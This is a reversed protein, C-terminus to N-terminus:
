LKGKVGYVYGGRLGVLQQTYLFAKGDAKTVVDTLHPLERTSCVVSLVEVPGERGMGLYRTCAFGAERVAAEIEEWSDHTIITVEVIARAMRQSLLIGMMTGTAFGAAYALVYPWNRIDNIVRSVILIFILVEVFGILAALYKRGRVILQVRITGLSVDVVRAAFIVLSWLFVEM